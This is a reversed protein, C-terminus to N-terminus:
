LAGHITMIGCGGDGDNVGHEPEAGETAESTVTPYPGRSRESPVWLESLVSAGAKMIVGGSGVHAMLDSAVSPESVRADVAAAM